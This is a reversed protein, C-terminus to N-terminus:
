SLDVGGRGGIYANHMVVSLMMATRRDDVGILPSAYFHLQIFKFVMESASTIHGAGLLHPM